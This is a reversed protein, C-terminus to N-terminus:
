RNVQEGGVYGSERVVAQGEESILWEAFRKVAPAPNERHILVCQYVYPYAGSSITEPTPAVGDVSITRAFPSKALYHEYYQVTYGIAALNRELNDFIGMMSHVEHEMMEKRIPIGKMVLERMLEESGSDRERTLPIIEGGFGGVDKWSTIIGSYIGRIEEQTLNRVPNHRNQVFVFADRAFPTCVLKVGLKEAAALENESPIRASFCLDRRGEIVNMVAGHTTSFHLDDMRKWSVEARLKRDGPTIGFRGTKTGSDGFLSRFGYRFEDEANKQEETKYLYLHQIIKKAVPELSTSGDWRAIEMGTLELAELQPTEAVYAAGFEEAFREVYWSEVTSESHLIRSAPEGALLRKQWSEMPPIILFTPPCAERLLDAATEANERTLGELKKLREAFMDRHENLCAIRYDLMELLEDAAERWYAQKRAPAFITPYERFAKAILDHIERSALIANYEGTRKLKESLNKDRRLKEPFDEWSHEEPLLEVLRVCLKRWSECVDTVSGTYEAMKEMLIPRKSAPFHGFDPKPAASAFSPCLFLAAIFFLLRNKM